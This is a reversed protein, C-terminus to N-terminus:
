REVYLTAGGGRDRNTRGYVVVTAGAEFGAIDDTVTVAAGIGLGPAGDHAKMEYQRPPDSREALWLPSESAADVALSLATEVPVAKAAVGWVAVVAADVASPTERWGKSWLAVTSASAASGTTSSPSANQGWKVIVQKAPVTPTTTALTLGGTEGAATRYARTPVADVARPLRTVVIRDEIDLYWRGRSVSSVLRDFLARHTTSDGAPLYAGITRPTADMGVTVAAGVIGSSVALWGVVAGIHRHWVGGVTEGEVECRFDLPKGGGVTVIGNALNVAYETVLGSAGPVGPVLAYPVAQDWARPVGHIPRGGSVSYTHKTGVVGLYTPVVIPCHGIAREKASGALEAPGELGGTGAYRDAEGQISADFDALRDWVPLRLETRTPVILGAKARWIPVASSLPADDEVEMEEVELVTYDTLLINLPRLAGLAVRLWADATIDYVSAYRRIDDPLRVNMLRLDDFAARSGGSEGSAKVAVSAWQGIYPLWAVSDPDDDSWSQYGPATALHWRHRHGSATHRTYLNFLHIKM